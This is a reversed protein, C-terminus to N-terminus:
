FFLFHIKAFLSFIIETNTLNRQPGIFKHRSILLTKLDIEFHSVPFNQVSIGYKENDKVGREWFIPFVLGSTAADANISLLAKFM